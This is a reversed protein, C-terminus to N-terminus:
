NQNLITQLYREWRMAMAGATYSHWATRTTVWDLKGKLQSRLVAGAFQGPTADIEVTEGMPGHFEEMEEAFPWLCYVTPVGALWAETLSLPFAETESPLMFCDAATLLDGPADVPPLVRLRPHKALRGKMGCQDPGAMICFWTEPLCDLTERVLQPRKEPSFRGYWLLVSAEMPIGLQARVYRRGLRPVCREIEAGNPIVKVREWHERPFASKAAWSVAVLDTAVAAMSACVEKSFELAETGHAVAVVRGTFGQVLAALDPTGWALIVDCVAHLEEPTRVITTLREAEARLPGPEQLSLIATVVVNRSFHRALALVWREAGGIKLCPTIFGVRVVPGTELPSHADTATYHNRM